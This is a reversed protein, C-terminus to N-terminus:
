MTLVPADEAWVLIDEGVCRPEYLFRQEEGTVLIATTQVVRQNYRDPNKVLACFSVPRAKRQDQLHSSSLSAEPPLRDVSFTGNAYPSGTTDLGFVVATLVTCAAIGGLFRVTRDDM